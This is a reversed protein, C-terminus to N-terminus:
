KANWIFQNEKRSRFHSFYILQFKEFNHFCVDGLDAQLPVVFVPPGEPGKDEIEVRGYKNLNELYNIKGLSEQHQTDSM